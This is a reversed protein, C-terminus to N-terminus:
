CTDMCPISIIALNWYWYICTSTKLSFSYSLNADNSEHQSIFLLNHSGAFHFTYWITCGYTYAIIEMHMIIIRSVNCTHYPISCSFSIERFFLLDFQTLGASPVTWQGKLSAILNNPIHSLQLLGPLSLANSKVNVIILLHCVQVQYLCCGEM